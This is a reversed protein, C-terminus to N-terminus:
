KVKEKKLEYVKKLRNDYMKGEYIIGNKYEGEFKLEGTKYYEKGKGYRKGYHYEGEFKLNENDYYEKGNGKKEGNIYEGEFKLRENNDYEKGKGNKKGNSFEGEFILKDKYEDYIKGIKNNNDLITTFNGSFIKYHLLKLDLKSQIRKNYKVLNLQTKLNVHSIFMKLIYKSKINDLM